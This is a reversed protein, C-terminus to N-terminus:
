LALYLLATVVLTGMIEAALMEVNVTAAVDYTKPKAVGQRNSENLDATQPPAFLFAFRTGVWMNIGDVRPLLLRWPPFLVMAVIVGAAILLVMRSWLNSKM